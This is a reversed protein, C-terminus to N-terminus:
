ASPPPPCLPLPPLARLPRPAGRAPAPPEHRNSALTNSTRARIIKAAERLAKKRTAFSSSGLATQATGAARVLGEILATAADTKAQTQTM